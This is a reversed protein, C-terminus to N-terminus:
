FVWGIVFSVGFAAATAKRPNADIWALTAAYAAKIKDM